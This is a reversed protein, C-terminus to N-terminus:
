SLRIPRAFVSRRYSQAEWNEIFQRFEEDLYNIGGMKLAGTMVKIADVYVLRATGAESSTGAVAFLGLRELLVISPQLHHRDTYDEVAVRLRRELDGIPEGPPTTVWVPFSRCYVVQDPM